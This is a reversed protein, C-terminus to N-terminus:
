PKAATPHDKSPKPQTSADTNTSEVDNQSFLVPKARDEPALNKLRTLTKEQTQAVQQGALTNLTELPRTHILDYILASEKSWKDELMNAKVKEAIPEITNDLNQHLTVIQVAIQNLDDMTLEESSTLKEKIKDLETLTAQTLEKLELIEQELHLSHFCNNAQPIEELRILSNQVQETHSQFTVLYTGVLSAAQNLMLQNQLAELEESPHDTNTARLLAFYQLDEFSSQLHKMCTSLGAGVFQLQQSLKETRESTKNESAQVDARVLLEQVDDKMSHLKALNELHRNKSSGRYSKALVFNERVILMNICKQCERLANKNQPTSPPYQQNKKLISELLSIGEEVDEKNISTPPKAKLKKYYENFGSFDQFM